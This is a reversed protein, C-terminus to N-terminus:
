VLHEAHMNGATLSTVDSRERNPLCVGKTRFSLGLSPLTSSFHRLRSTNLYQAKHIDAQGCRSFYDVFRSQFALVLHYSTKHASIILCEFLPNWFNNKTSGVFVLSVDHLGVARSGSHFLAHMIMWERMSCIMGVSGSSSTHVFEENM